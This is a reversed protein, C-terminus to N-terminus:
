DKMKIQRGVIWAPLNWYLFKKYFATQECPMEKKVKDECDGDLRVGVRDM